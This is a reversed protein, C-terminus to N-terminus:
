ESCWGGLVSTEREVGPQLSHADSKRTTIETTSMMKSDMASPGATEAGLRGATWIGSSYKGGLLIRNRCFRGSLTLLSWSM